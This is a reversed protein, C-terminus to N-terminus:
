SDKERQRKREEIFAQLDSKSIRYGRKGIPFAPLGAHEIWNIVTRESVKMQQAVQQVTLMEDEMPEVGINIAWMTVSEDINCQKRVIRFYGCVTANDSFIRISECLVHKELCCSPLM